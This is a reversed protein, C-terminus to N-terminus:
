AKEHPKKTFTIDRAAIISGILTANDDYLPTMFAELWVYHGAANHVRCEFKTSTRKQIHQNFNELVNKLDQPHILDFFSKGLLKKAPHGLITKHSPSIYQYIGKLDTQIVIDLMNEALRRERLIAEKLNKAIQEFTILLYNIAMGMATLDDKGDVSIRGAYYNTSAINRVQRSISVLKAVV